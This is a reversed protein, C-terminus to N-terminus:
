ETMFKILITTEFLYIRTLDYDSWFSSITLQCFFIKDISM